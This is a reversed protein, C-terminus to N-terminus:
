PFSRKQRALQDFGSAMCLCVTLLESRLCYVKYEAWHTLSLDIPNWTVM